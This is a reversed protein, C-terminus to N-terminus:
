FCADGYRKLTHATLWWFKTALSMGKVFLVMAATSRMYTGFQNAACIQRKCETAQCSSGCIHSFLLGGGLNNLDIWQGALGSLLKLELFQVDLIM